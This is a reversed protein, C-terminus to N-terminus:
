QTTLHGQDARWGVNQSSADQGFAAQWSKTEEFECWHAHHDQGCSDQVHDQNAPSQKRQPLAGVALLIDISQAVVDGFYPYRGSAWKIPFRQNFRAQSLFVVQCHEGDLPFISLLWDQM